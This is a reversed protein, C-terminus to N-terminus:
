RIMTLSKLTLGEMIIDTGNNLINIEGTRGEELSTLILRYPDTPSGDNLIDARIGLDSDDNIKRVIESLTDDTEFIIEKREGTDGIKYEISSKGRVRFM